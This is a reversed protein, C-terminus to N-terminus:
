VYFLKVINDNGFSQENLGSVFVVLSGEKIFNCKLLHPRLLDFNAAFDNEENIFLPTVGWIFNLRRFVHMNHTVAIIPVKPRYKAIKKATLTSNTLTIIASANIQEALNCAAKGIADSIDKEEFLLPLKAKGNNPNKEETNKIIRFMYDIAELPYRGTGTEGSLMVCDTGDLVANAVDSAEARTPRPNNIMSELMQTATIVPKGYYNARKILDKQILPVDEPLLELGLDGRAVMIADVESIIEDITQLADPREIKAIIPVPRGFIRMATKLEIIDRVNRVFSLAVVDVNNALGFKLDELDKESMSPASFSVGPAIIGKRSKLVGGKLINTHVEHNLIKTVQLILYGDDLLLINGPKVEKPLNEYSTSVIKSNGNEITDTTIIFEEDDNIIVSGNEVNEIRIKPGQLDQLIAIEKEAIESAKRINKILEAHSEHNGHSFNLRAIDMGKQILKVLIEVKDTAPGITCVIKTKRPTMSKLNQEVTM